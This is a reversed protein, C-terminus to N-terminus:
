GLPTPGFSAMRAFYPAVKEVDGHRFRAVLLWTALLHVAVAQAYTGPLDACSKDVYFVKATGSKPTTFFGISGRLSPHVYPSAGRFVAAYLGSFSNLTGAKVFPALKPAWFEDCQHAATEANVLKTSTTLGTPSAEVEAGLRQLSERSVNILRLDDNKWANTRSPPYPDALLWGFVILHETMVRVLAASDEHLGAEGLRLISQLTGTLRVPIWQLQALPDGDTEAVTIPLFSNVLRILDVGISQAAVFASNM